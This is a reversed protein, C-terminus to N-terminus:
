GMEGDRWVVVCGYLWPVRNGLYRVCVSSKELDGDTTARPKYVYM